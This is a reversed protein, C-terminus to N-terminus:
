PTQRVPHNPPSTFAAKALAPTPVVMVLDGRHVVSFLKEAFDFPVGICGHTARGREVASAHIAVGDATLWLTFPMDADYLTSRHMREKGRVPFMGTPTPKGDTGYIVVAAGIEDPGRFVSILQRTLDVRIWIPANSAAFDNWAFDGFAMTRPLALMSAIRRRTGDPAPLVPEHRQDYRIRAGTAPAHEQHNAPHEVAFNRVIDTNDDCASLWLIGIILGIRRASASPRDRVM